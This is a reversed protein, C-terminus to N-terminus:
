VALFTFSSSRSAWRSKMRAETPSVLLPFSKTGFISWEKARPRMFSELSAIQIDRKRGRSCAAKISCHIEFLRCLKRPELFQPTKGKSERNRYRKRGSVSGQRQHRRGIEPNVTFVLHFENEDSWRRMVCLHDITWGLHIICIRSNCKPM